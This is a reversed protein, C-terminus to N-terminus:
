PSCTAGTVSKGSGSEGVVAMFDGDNVTLSVGRVAKVLSHHSHFTTRLNEVRLLERPASTAM